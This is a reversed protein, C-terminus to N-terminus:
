LIGIHGSFWIAFGALAALYLPLRGRGKGCVAAFLAFFALFDGASEVTNRMRWWSQDSRYFRVLIVSVWFIAINLSGALLGSFLVIPRLRPAQFKSPALGWTAWAIGLAIHAAIFLLLLLGMVVSASGVIVTGAIFIAGYVAAFFVGRHRIRFPPRVGGAQKSFDYGCDCRSSDSPNILGCVSCEM